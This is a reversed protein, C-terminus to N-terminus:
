GNEQPKEDRIKRIKYLIYKKSGANYIEHGHLKVRSRVPGLNMVFRDVADGLTILGLGLEEKFVKMAYAERSLDGGNITTDVIAAYIRQQIKAKEGFITIPLPFIHKEVIESPPSNGRTEEGEFYHLLDNIQIQKVQARGEDKRNPLQEAAPKSNGAYYGAEEGRKEGRVTVIDRKKRLQSLLVSTRSVIKEHDDSSDPYLKLALKGSKIPNEESGCEIIIDFLEREKRTLPKELEEDQSQPDDHLMEKAQKEGSETKAASKQDDTGLLSASVETLIQSEKETAIGSQYLTSVAELADRIIIAKEGIQRQRKEHLFPLARGNIRELLVLRRQFILWVDDFIKVPSQDPQPSYEEIITTGNKVVITELGDIKRSTKDIEGQLEVLTKRGQEVM